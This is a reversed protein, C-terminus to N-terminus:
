IIRLRNWPVTREHHERFVDPFSQNKIFKLYYLFLGIGHFPNFTNKVFIDASDQNKHKNWLLAHKRITSRWQNTGHVKSTYFKLTKQTLNIEPFVEWHSSGTSTWPLWNFCYVAIIAYKLPLCKFCIILVSIFLPHPM